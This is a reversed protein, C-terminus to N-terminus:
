LHVLMFNGLEVLVEVFLGKIEANMKLKDAITAFNSAFYEVSPPDNDKVACQEEASQLYGTEIDKYYKGWKKKCATELENWTPGPNPEIGEALLNRM